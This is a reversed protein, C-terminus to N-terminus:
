WYWIHTGLKTDVDQAALTTVTADCVTTVNSDTEFDMSAVGCPNVIDYNRGDFGSVVMAHGTAKDVSTIIVPGWGLAHRVNAGRPKELARLGLQKYFVDMQSEVLGSNMTAFAGARAGYDLIKKHRWLWLMKGCAEWCLKETTQSIMPVRYATM